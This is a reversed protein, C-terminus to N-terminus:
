SRSSSWVAVSFTPLSPLPSPIGNAGVRRVGHRVGHRLGHPWRSPCWSSFPVRMIIVGVVSRDDPTL